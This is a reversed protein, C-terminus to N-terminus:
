VEKYYNPITDITYEIDRLLYYNYSISSLKEFCHISVNFESSPAYENFVSITRYEINEIDFELDFINITNSTDINERVMKSLKNSLDMNGAFISIVIDIKVCSFDRIYGYKYLNSKDQFPKYRDIMINFLRNKKIPVSQVEPYNYTILICPMKYSEDIFNDIICPVVFYVKDNIGWDYLLRGGDFNDYFTLKYGENTHEISRIQHIEVPELKQEFEFYNSGYVKKTFSELDKKSSSFAIVYGEDVDYIDKMIVYNKGSEAEEIVGCEEYYANHFKSAISSLLNHEISDQLLFLDGFYIKSYVGLNALVRIRFRNFKVEKEAGLNNILNSIDVSDMGKFVSLDIFYYFYGCKNTIDVNREVLFEGLTENNYMLEISLKADRISYSSYKFPIKNLNVIDYKLSFILYDYNYVKGFSDKCYICYEKKLYFDIYSDYFINDDTFVIYLQKDKNRRNFDWDWDRYQVSYFDSQYTYSSMKGSFDDVLIFGM